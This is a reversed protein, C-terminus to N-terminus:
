DMVGHQLLIQQVELLGDVVIFLLWHHYINQNEM